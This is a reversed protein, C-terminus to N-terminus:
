ETRKDPTFLCGQTINIDEHFEHGLFV